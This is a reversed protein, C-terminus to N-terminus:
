RLHFLKALVSAAAVVISAAIALGCLGAVAAGGYFVVRRMYGEATPPFVIKQDRQPFLDFHM